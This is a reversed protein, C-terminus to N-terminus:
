QLVALRGHRKGLLPLRGPCVLMRSVRSLAHPSACASGPPPRFVHRESTGAAVRLGVMCTTPAGVAQAGSGQAVGAEGALAAARTAARPAHRRPHARVIEESFTPKVREHLFGHVFGTIFLAPPSCLRHHVNGTTFLIDFTTFLTTVTTFLASLVVSPSCLLHHVGTTFLTNTFLKTRNRETESPIAYMHAQARAVQGAAVAM